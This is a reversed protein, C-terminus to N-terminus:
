TWKQGRDAPVIRRLTFIDGQLETRHESLDKWSDWQASLLKGTIGDGGPGALHVCLAAALKPDAAGEEQWQKNKAHYAGGAREPGADIVQQTFRTRLAGPAIANATIGLDRCEEAITETLRVVAAKSAAYAAFRPMPSTAGGGSLNLIRGNRQPRMHRIAEQCVLLTGTLNVQLTRSWEEPSIEETPGIPGLIGANNVVVRIPGIRAATVFLERVAAADSVDCVVGQLLQGSGLRPTLECRTQDVDAATRACFTVHAGAALFAEVLHRGLGQSGGTIICNTGTLNM